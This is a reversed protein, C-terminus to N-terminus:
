AQNEREDQSACPTGTSARSEKIGWVSSAISEVKKMFNDVNYGAVFAVALYGFNVADPQVKADLVLLGAKLFICSVAGSVASTVPRLYYWVHWDPDWTKRVCKNLYVARLCYTTGAIVGIATCKVFLINALYWSPMTVVQDILFLVSGVLLWALLYLVIKNM